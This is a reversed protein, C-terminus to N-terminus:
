NKIPLNCISIEYLERLRIYEIDVWQRSHNTEFDTLLERTFTDFQAFLKPIEEHELDSTTWYIAEAASYKAICASAYSMAACKDEQREKKADDFSCDHARNALTFAGQMLSIFAKKKEDM